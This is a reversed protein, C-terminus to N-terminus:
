AGIEALYITLDLNTSGQRADTWSVTLTVPYYINRLPDIAHVGNPGVREGIDLAWTLGLDEYPQTIQAIRPRLVDDYEEPDDLLIVGLGESPAAVDAVIETRIVALLAVARERQLSAAAASSADSMMVVSVPVAMSLIVMAVVGEILTFGARSM